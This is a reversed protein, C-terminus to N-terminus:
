TRPSGFGLSVLAAEVAGAEHDTFMVPGRQFQVLHGTLKAAATVAGPRLGKWLEDALESAASPDVTMARGQYRLVIMEDSSSADQMMRRRNGGVRELAVEAFAIRM